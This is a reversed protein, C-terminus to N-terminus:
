RIQLSNAHLIADVNYQMQTGVGTSQAAVTVNYTKGDLVESFVGTQTTGSFSLDTYVRSTWGQALEYTKINDAQDQVLATQTVGQSFIGISLIMMTLVVMLVTVLVMGSENQRIKLM